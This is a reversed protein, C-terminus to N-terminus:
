NKRVKSFAVNPSIEPCRMFPNNVLAGLKIAIDYVIKLRLITKKIM